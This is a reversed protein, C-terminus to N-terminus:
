AIPVIAYFRPNLAAEEVASATTANPPVFAPVEEPTMTAPTM